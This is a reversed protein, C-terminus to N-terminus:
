NAPENTTVVKNIDIQLSMEYPDVLGDAVPQDNDCQLFMGCPGVLGLAVSPGVPGDAVLQDSNM